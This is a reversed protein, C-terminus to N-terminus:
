CRPVRVRVRLACPDCTGMFELVLVLLFWSCLCQRHCLALLERGGEYEYEAGRYESEYESEFHVPNARGLSNSYSASYSYSYSYSGPAFSAPQSM